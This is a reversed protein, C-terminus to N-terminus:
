FNVDYKIIMVYNNLDQYKSQCLSITLVKYSLQDMLEHFKGRLRMNKFLIVGFKVCLVKSMCKTFTQYEKIM